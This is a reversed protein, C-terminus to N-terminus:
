RFVIWGSEQEKKQPRISIFYFFGIIAVFYLAMVGIGGFGSAAGATTLLIGGM